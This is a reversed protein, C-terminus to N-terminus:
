EPRDIDLASGSGAAGRLGRPRPDHRRVVRDRLRTRDADGEPVARHRAPQRAPFNTRIDQFPQGRAIVDGCPDPNAADGLQIYPTYTTTIVSFLAGFTSQATFNGISLPRGVLEATPLTEELVTAMSLGNGLGFLAGFQSFTEVSLELKTKHRQEDPVKAFTTTATTFSQGITASDFLPDADRMGQGDGTDFQFWTHWQTSDPFLSSDFQPTATPTGAPIFGTTQHTPPFMSLVLQQAQSLSLEGQRYQAPTGSARMLAVGLSAVDVSNGARSWLAGRAGRLSGVYANYAV